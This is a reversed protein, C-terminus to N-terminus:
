DCLELGLEEAIRLASEYDEISLPHAIETFERARFEPRYQAMVNVKVENLNESIWTLAPRTCCDLHGPLVLHRIIMEGNARALLHNRKVVMM